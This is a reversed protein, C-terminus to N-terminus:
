AKVGSPSRLGRRTAERRKRGEVTRIIGTRLAQAQPACKGNGGLANVRRTFARKEEKCVAEAEGVDDHEKVRREAVCIMQKKMRQQVGCQAM